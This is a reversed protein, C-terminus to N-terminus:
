AGAISLMVISTLACLLGIWQLKNQREHFIVMAFIASFILVGGNDLTTAVTTNCRSLVFLMLNVALTAIAFCCLGWLGSRKGVCFVRFVDRRCQVALLIFALVASGLYSILIMETREGGALLNAQLTNVAGYAGNSIGLLLCSIWFGRQNKKGNIGKANLFVFAALMLLVAAIQLIGLTQGLKVASVIMPILIGGFLMSITMVAYSGRAAASIQSLNFLLLVAANCLGLWVTLASPAFAFGGSAFTFLGIAGGFLVAFVLPSAKADCQCDRNFLRSFLTQLAHCLAMFLILLIDVM